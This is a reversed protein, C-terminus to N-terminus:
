QLCASTEKNYGIKSYYSKKSKKYVGLYKSIGCPKKNTNNQSRTCFRLNSKRNDLPNRNIHDILQGDKANMIVRSMSVNISKCHGISVERSARCDNKHKSAYWKWQNLYEFDEDDVLAFQGQTLKIEKM